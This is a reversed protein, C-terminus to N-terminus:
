HHTAEGTTSGSRPRRVSGLPLAATPQRVSQTALFDLRVLKLRLSASPSSSCCATPPQFDREFNHLQPQVARLRGADALAVDQVSGLLRVTADPQARYSTLGRTKLILMTTM